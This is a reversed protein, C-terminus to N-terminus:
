TRKIKDDISWRPTQPVPPAYGLRGLMQVTEGDRALMRHAKQYLETMENYEQLSQSVPQLAMGNQTTTLNLRLWARGAAIQNTRSNDETTLWVFAPTAEFMTKYIDYGADYSMTGPTGLDERTMLGAAMLAELPMGGLDIGDPNANIQAKGLRMLDVSEMHTAPTSYEILWAQWILNTLEAIESEAVTGSFRVGGVNPQLGPLQNAMVAQSMDFPEKTSRRDPIAAFLPDVSIESAVFRIRAIPKDGLAISSEGEPFLTTDLRYGITTAAIAMQELFCGLGITIQRDFPDTEPLRRTPDTFLTVVGEEQLDVLWPQLNHPNPALIAYSLAFKRPETYQGAESWPALAAHPTRTLAFGVAGAGAALVVGGGVLSIFKRRSLGASKKSNM